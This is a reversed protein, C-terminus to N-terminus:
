DSVGGRRSCRWLSRGPEFDCSVGGAYSTSSQCDADNVCEDQSTHCFYGQFSLSTGGTGDPNWSPSCFDSPGCDADIHCDFSTVCRNVVLSETARCDCFGGGSCDADATCADYTCGVIGLGTGQCRGNRGQTCDADTMCDGAVGGQAPSASPARPACTSAAARHVTAARPPPSPLPKATGAGSCGVVTSVVLVVVVLKSIM